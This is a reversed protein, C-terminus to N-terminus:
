IESTTLSALRVIVMDVSKQLEFKEVEMRELSRMNDKLADNLRQFAVNSNLM